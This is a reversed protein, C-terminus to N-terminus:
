FHTESEMINLSGWESDKDREKQTSAKTSAGRHSDTEIVKQEPTLFTKVEHAHLTPTLLLVHLTM